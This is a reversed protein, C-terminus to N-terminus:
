ANAITFKGPRETIKPIKRAVIITGSCVIMMGTNTIMRYRPSDSLGIDKTTAASPLANPV